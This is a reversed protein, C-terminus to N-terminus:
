DNIASSTRGTGEARELKTVQSDYLGFSREKGTKRWTGTRILAREIAGSPFDPCANPQKQCQRLDRYSRLRIDTLLLVQYPAVTAEIEQAVTAETGRRAVRVLGIGDDPTRYQIVEGNHTYQLPIYSWGWAAGTEYVIAKPGVTTDYLAGVFRQPGHVFMSAHVFFTHTSIGAGMLLAALAVKRGAVDWSRFGTVSTAGAGILLSFPVLLWVNYNAALPDFARVAFSAMITAFVGFVVVAILWDFPKLNRNRVRLGAAFISAALLAITGCFFLISATISVMNAPDGVLKLFYTLYQVITKEDTIFAASTATLPVFMLVHAAASVFPTLPLSGLAVVVFAGVIDALAGFSGLSSIGLTLFFASSSVIGFFHTYIAVLCIGTFLTLLKLDFKIPCAMLRIFVATQACTAAFFIPYARIEVGAQILKPSLVLFGLLVLTASRGLYRWAVSALWSVGAIVFASHFLRFGIESPGYLHFWLWDLIYSVPPMRDGPVALRDPDAGALWQLMEWFSLTLGSLQTSEDLWIDQVRAFVYFEISLVTILVAVIPVAVLPSLDFDRRVMKKIEIISSAHM